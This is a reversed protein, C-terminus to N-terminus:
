GRRRRRELALLASLMLAALAASGGSSSRGSSSPSARCGSTLTSGDYEQNTVSGAEWCDPDDECSGNCSGDTVCTGGGCDPDNSCISNCNGDQTCCDPDPPSCSDNCIDDAACAGACDPDSAPDSCAATCFGDSACPCDPDVDACGFACQGDSGCSANIEGAFAAIDDLYRDVRTDISVSFCDSRSHIGAVVETGGRDILTTGGSDGSCTGGPTFSMEFTAPDIRSINGSTQRKLGSNSGGDSTVGYGIIRMEAGDDAGSLTQNLGIPTAPGASQIRVLGIDDELVQESWGPNTWGEVVPILTGDGDYYDTGFFIEIDNYNGPINPPLCHAATMVVTPAILTGSCFLQGFGTIGVVAPDGSDTSGNVIQTRADVTPLPAPPADSCGATLCSLGIVAIALTPRV